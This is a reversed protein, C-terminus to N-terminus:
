LLALSIFSLKLRSAIYLWNCTGTSVNDWHKSNKKLKIIWLFLLYINLVTSYLYIQTVSFKVSNPCHQSLFIWWHYYILLKSLLKYICVLVSYAQVRNVPLSTIFNIWKSGRIKCWELTPRYKSADFLFLKWEFHM